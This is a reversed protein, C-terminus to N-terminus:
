TEFYITSARAYDEDGEFGETGTSLINHPAPPLSIAVLLIALLCM